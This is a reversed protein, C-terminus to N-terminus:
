MDKRAHWLGLAETPTSAQGFIETCAKVAAPDFLNSMELSKSRMGGTFQIREWQMGKIHDPFRRICLGRLGGRTDQPGAILATEVDRETTLRWAKGEAELGLYLGREPNVNHYELDLSALWPDDWGVGEEKVFTELLWLKTIWDLKGVLQRRDGSLLRLTDAWEKLVWDSEQDRGGLSQEASVLYQEQIDLGSITRGNKLRVTRQFDVDRSLEKVATVPQELELDPALGREILDLVLQTTGIKLATAYECMNADGIILHLRRYKNKDAHPEDRTNLIPRNHMTDVSLETEMFDARQSLQYAGPVFGSEQAESGMKGAGAMIQRSALFPLLGSVLDAFPVARPVLYNDHCGYSHGHFDTNNKYLQVYEGGLMQNRRQAARQVIREGARDQSLLDKLTRCEPTSYEPHTHDNYFRAGNPLVLDSKMEHFSFPRHADVKAFEDEEQDQQLGSVRFGRADEHPDEGGYDWRREFSATLHARVLEMSEVVPDVQDLDTRTIGYETEIGFLAM